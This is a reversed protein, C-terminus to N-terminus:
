ATKKVKSLDNNDKFLMKLLSKFVYFIIVLISLVLFFIIVKLSSTKKEQAKLENELLVTKKETEANIKKQKLLKNELSIVELDILNPVEVEGNRNKPIKKEVDSIMKLNGRLEYNVSLKNSLNDIMEFIDDSSIDVVDNVAEIVRNNSPENIAATRKRSNINNLEDETDSTDTNDRATFLADNKYIAKREKNRNMTM